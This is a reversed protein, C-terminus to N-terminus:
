RDVIYIDVGTGDLQYNYYGDLPLSRQDARDIATNWGSRSALRRGRLASNEIPAVAAIPAISVAQTYVYFDQEIYEIDVHGALLAIDAADAQVTVFGRLPASEHSKHGHITNGLVGSAVDIAKRRGDTVVSDKVKVIYSGQVHVINFDRGTNSPMPRVTTSTAGVLLGLLWISLALLRTM